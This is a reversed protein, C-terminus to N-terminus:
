ADPREVMRDLDLFAHHEREFGLVAPLELPTHADLFHQDHVLVLDLDDGAERHLLDRDDIWHRPIRGQRAASPAPASVSPFRRTLRLSMWVATRCAGRFSSITPRVFGCAAGPSTTTRVAEVATHWVSREM